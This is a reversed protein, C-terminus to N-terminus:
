RGGARTKAWRVRAANRAIASCQETRWSRTSPRLSASPAVCDGLTPHYRPYERQVLIAEVAAARAPDDDPTRRIGGWPRQRLVLPYSRGCVGAPLGSIPKHGSKTPDGPLHPSSRPV